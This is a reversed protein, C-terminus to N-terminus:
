RPSAFLRIPPSRRADPSDPFASPYVPFHSNQARAGPMEGSLGAIPSLSLEISLASTRPAASAVVTSGTRMRGTARSSSVFNVKTKLAQMM